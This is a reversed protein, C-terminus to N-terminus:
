QLEAEPTSEVFELLDANEDLIIGLKRDDYRMETLFQNVTASWHGNSPPTYKKEVKTPTDLGQDIYYKKLTKAAQEFNAEFSPFMTVKTGYVGFGLCNYSEDYGGADNKPKPTKTCLNSEKMAIAPLFRFDINHEDALNVFFEGWYEEPVLPHHLNRNPEAGNYRKLFNTILIARADDTEVVTTAGLIEADSLNAKSNTILVTEPQEQSAFLNIDSIKYLTTAAILTFAVGVSLLLWSFAFFISKM